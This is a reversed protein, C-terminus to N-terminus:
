RWYYIESYNNRTNGAFRNAVLLYENFMNGIPTSSYLAGIQPAHYACMVCYGRREHADQQIAIPRFM